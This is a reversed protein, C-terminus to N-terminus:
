YRLQKIKQYSHQAESEMITEKRMSAVMDDWLAKLTVGSAVLAERVSKLLKTLQVILHAIQQLEYYNQMAGLHKRSYKHQMGYGLNKQANFGENEIKWRLRGHFSVEWANDKSVGMDTLHVFRTKTGPDGSYWRQYEIWNLFHKQYQIGLVHMLSEEEWGKTNKGVIRQQRNTTTCLPYLSM